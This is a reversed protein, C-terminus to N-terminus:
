CSVRRKLNRFLDESFLFPLIVLGVFLFLGGSFLLAVKLSFLDNIWGIIPGLLSFFLRGVMNKVSLVTARVDSSIIKQVIDNTIPNNIGRSVYFFVIFLGSWITNTFGLLFYGVVPLLLMSSLVVKKGFFDEIRQVNWSSFASVFMLLAWIIGFYKLEVGGERLYPQIFWVMVITSTAVVSSYLIVWKLKVEKKWLSSVTKFTKVLKIEKGKSKNSLPEYISLIVPFSILTVFAEGYIPVNLSILALLGGVISAVGESILGMSCNRGEIQKYEHERGLELLSDYMLASDTGSIFSAGLGLMLEALLFGWFDGALAYGIFGIFTLTWGLIISNKRGFKDSFYGSPVELVLIAVSFISQLLLVEKMTLGKEQFFLVIIPMMLM